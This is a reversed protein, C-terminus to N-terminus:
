LWRKQSHTRNPRQAPQWPVIIFGSMGIFVVALAVALVNQGALFQAGFFFAVIDESVLILLVFVPALLAQLAVLGVLLRQDAGGSKDDRHRHVFIPYVFNSLANALVNLRLGLDAQASIQGFTAQPVHAKLLMRDFSFLIAGFVNFSFLQSADKVIRRWTDASISGSVKWLDASAWRRHQVLLLAHCVVFPIWFAFDDGILAYGALTFAFAGAQAVNRAIMAAHVRGKLSEAAFYPAIQCYLAITLAGGLATAPGLMILFVVGTLATVICTNWLNLRKLEPTMRPGDAVTPMAQTMLVRGVELNSFGVFLLLFMSFEGYIAPGSERAILPLLVFGTVALMAQGGLVLAFKRPSFRSQSMALVGVAGM